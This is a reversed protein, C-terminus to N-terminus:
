CTSALSEVRLHGMPSLVLRKNLNTSSSACYFFSGNSGRPLGTDAKFFLRPKNLAGRWDLRGYELDLMVKSLIKEDSNLEKDNNTDVFILLGKNWQEDECQELNQSSCIVIQNRYTLAHNKAQIIQMNLLHPLSKAEQQARYEQYAPIAFSALIAVIAICVVLELLSVGNNNKKM